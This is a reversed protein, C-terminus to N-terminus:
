QSAWEEDFYYEIDSQELASQLVGEPDGGTQEVNFYHKIPHRVWSTEYHHYIDLEGENHGPFITAHNQMDALISPRSVWSGESPEEKGSLRRYKKAALVNRHYGGRYLVEELKDENVKVSYVYERKGKEIIAYGGLLSLAEHIKIWYKDRYTEVWDDKPGLQRQLLSLIIFAAIVLGYLEQNQELANRILEEAVSM